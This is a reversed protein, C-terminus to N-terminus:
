TRDFYDDSDEDDFDYQEWPVVADYKRQDSLHWHMAQNLTGEAWELSGSYVNTYRGSISHGTLNIIM